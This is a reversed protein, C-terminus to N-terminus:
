QAFEGGIRATYYDSPEGPLGNGNQDMQNGFFDTINPGVSVKELVRNTPNTWALQFTRSESAPLPPGVGIVGEGAAAGNIRVDAPTFSYPNIPESFTVFMSNPAIYESSVIRPGIADKADVLLLYAGVDGYNGFSGVQVFYTGAPVSATLGALLSPDMDEALLSGDSSFLRLTPDLNAVKDNFNPLEKPGKPLIVRISVNSGDTYFRFTDVDTMKEIVGLGILTSTNSQRLPSAHDFDEWHDDRRYGFGNKSSAIKAMDDQGSWWTIREAVPLPDQMIPGRSPDGSDKQYHGLGFAHGAEHSAAKALFRENRKAFVYAVNPYDNAYAGQSTFGGKDEGRFDTEGSFVVRLYPWEPHFSGPDPDITTVNINFPAFDEAVASFIFRITEQEEASFTLPDFDLDFAPTQINNWGGVMPEPQFHGDFDLFLTAPAGPLSNLPLGQDVPISDGNPDSDPPANEGTTPGTPLDDEGIRPLATTTAAYM